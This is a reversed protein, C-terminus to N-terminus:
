KLSNFDSKFLTLQNILNSLHTNNKNMIEGFNKFNGSIDSVNGEILLDNNPININKITIYIVM